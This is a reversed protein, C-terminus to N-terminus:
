QASLAHPKSSIPNLAGAPEREVGPALRRLRQLRYFLAEECVRERVCGALQLVDSKNVTVPWNKSRGNACCGSDALVLYRHRTIHM